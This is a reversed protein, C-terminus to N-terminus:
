GPDSLTNLPCSLAKEDLTRIGKLWPQLAINDIALTGDPNIRGIANRPDNFAVTCKAISGDSRIVLSNPKSAYCVRDTTRQDEGGLLSHCRTTLEAARENSLTKIEDNKAGGWKGVPKLFVEFRPDALFQEKITAVFNEIAGQNQPSLHIRLLVRAELDSAQIALLNNWIRSFSGQGNKQIRLRDHIEAPGDLTIQYQRVGAAQLSRFTGANLLFGNTTMSSAYFKGAEKSKELTFRAIDEVIGKALLPEGGFWSIVISDLRTMRRGILNKIGAVVPQTMRGKSYDEYCYTCRFNCQETPCLILELYKNSLAALVEYYVADDM